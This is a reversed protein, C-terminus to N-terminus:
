QTAPQQDNAPAEISLAADSMVDGGFSDVNTAQEARKKYLARFKDIAEKNIEGTSPFAEFVGSQSSKQKVHEYGPRSLDLQAAGSSNYLKLSVAVLMLSIAISIGVLLLFRHREWRGLKHADRMLEEDTM